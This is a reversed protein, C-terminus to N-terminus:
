SWYAAAPYEGTVTFPYMGRRTGPFTPETFFRYVSTTGRTTLERGRLSKSPPKKNYM